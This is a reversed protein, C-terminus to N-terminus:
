NTSYVVAEALPATGDLAFVKCSYADAPVEPLVVTGDEAVDVIRIGTMRCSADYWAVVVQGMEGNLTIEQGAASGPMPIDFYTFYAAKEQSTTRVPTQYLIDEVPDYRVTFAADDSVFVARDGETWAYDAPCAVGVMGGYASVGITSGTLDAGVAVYGYEDLYLNAAEGDADANGVITAAGGLLLVGDMYVGNAGQNGTVTTNNLYVLAAATETAAATQLLPATAAINQGDLYMDFLFLSAQNSVHFMAGTFSEARTLVAQSEENYTMLWYSKDAPVTCTSTFEVYQPVMIYVEPVNKFRLNRAGWTNIVNLVDKFPAVTSGEPLDLVLTMNTSSCDTDILRAYETLPPANLVFGSGSYNCQSYAAHDRVIDSGEQQAMFYRNDTFYEDAATSVHVAATMGSDQITTDVDDWTADVAYWAGDLQIANWMHNSYGSFIGSSNGEGTIVVCPLGVRQCLLLYADSYGQCVVEGQMTGEMDLGVLAGYANHALEQEEKTFLADVNEGIIDYNYSLNGCIYNYIYRYQAAPEAEEMGDEAFAQLFMDVAQDLLTLKAATESLAELRLKCVTYDATSSIAISGSIVSTEFPHDNDYAAVGGLIYSRLDNATASGVYIEETTYSGSELAAAVGDYVALAPSDLLQDRYCTHEPAFTTEFSQLSIDAETMQNLPDYVIEFEETFEVEAAQATGILTVLMLALLLTKVIKNRVKM